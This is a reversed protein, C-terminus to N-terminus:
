IIKVGEFTATWVMAQKQRGDNAISRCPLQLENALALGGHLAAICM